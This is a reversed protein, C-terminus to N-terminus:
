VAGFVFSRLKARNTQAISRGTEKTGQFVLITSQRPVRHTRLFAKDSDYNVRMFVVNKLKADKSLESLIPAQAKCTPCWSAHVDVVITKGAKQAAQFSSASYQKIGPGATATAPLAFTAVAFAFVATFLAFFRTM